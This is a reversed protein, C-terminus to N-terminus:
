AKAVHHPNHIRSSFKRLRICIEDIAAVAVDIEDESNHVGFSFRVSSYAEDETLGMARLVYSPEPRASTCASSQSCRIGVSDLGAVLAQGDVGCFRLNTTNCMRPADHGNVVVDSITEMVGREFRDRLHRLKAIINDLNAFRVDAAMGYGVIGPLNETGPRLGNEQPGGYFMPSLWRPNRAYIGGIGQPGHMKHATMTLVDIPLQSLDIPVKGVVQAADTHFPVDRNRCISGLEEIPQLVGTENNAWQVSVLSTESTIQEDARSLDVQGMADVPLVVVDADRQSLHEVCNLVSSHEVSTTVIRPRSDTAAVASFLVANNAETGSSVFVVNSENAGVLRALAMRAQLASRRAREGASNASSVNGFGDSLVSAVADCVESLPMTTANNDLFIERTVNTETGLAIQRRIGGTVTFM